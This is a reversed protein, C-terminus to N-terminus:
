AIVKTSIHVFWQSKASPNVQVVIVVVVILDPTFHVENYIQLVSVSLCLLLVAIIIQISQFASCFFNTESCRSLELGTMREVCLLAASFFECQVIVVRAKLDSLQIKGSTYNFRM